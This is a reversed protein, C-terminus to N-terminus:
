IRIEWMRDQARSHCYLSKRSVFLNCGKYAYGATKKEVRWHKGDRSSLHRISSNSWAPTYVLHYRGRYYALSPWAPSTDGTVKAIDASHRQWNLGDGSKFMVLRGYGYAAADQVMFHGQGNIAYAMSSSFIYRARGDVKIARRLSWSEGGNRSIASVPIYGGTTPYGTGLHLLAFLTNGRRALAPTRLWDVIRGYSNKIGYSRMKERTLDPLRSFGSNVGGGSRWVRMDGRGDNNDAAVLRGGIEIVPCYNGCSIDLPSMKRWSLADAGIPVSLAILLAVIFRM